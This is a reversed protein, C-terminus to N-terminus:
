GMPNPDPLELSFQALMEYSSDSVMFHQSAAHIDRFCRQLSNSDFLVGGGAYRYAMTVVSAVVETVYTAVSRMEAQLAPGLAQEASVAEWARGFVELALSRAARLSLEAKGLDKQFSGRGALASVSVIGRSKSAAQEIVEDLARRGIGLAVGTHEVAVFGPLGMRYLPGGRRPRGQFVDDTAFSFDKSVFVGNLSYDCSGTGKLGSVHWNDHIEVQVRPVVFMRYEEGGGDAEVRGGSIVWQAHRIGSGFQWRGSLEFGGDVAVARGRPTVAGAIWPTSEGFIQEAAEDSVFGGVLGSTGGQIMLCWGAAGDIRALAEFIELQTVPDAEVGGLEVPIKLDSLGVAYLADVTRKPLTGSAEAVPVGAIVDDRVREVAELLEGRDLTGAGM